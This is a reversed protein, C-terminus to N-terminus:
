GQMSMSLATRVRYCTSLTLILFRAIASFIRVQLVDALIKVADSPRPDEPLIPVATELSHLGLVSDELDQADDGGAPVDPQDTAQQQQRTSDATV